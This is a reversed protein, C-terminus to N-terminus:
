LQDRLLSSPRRALRLAKFLGRFEGVLKVPIWWPHTLHFRTRVSRFFRWAIYAVPEWGEGERLAFYYDGVSHAPSASKLHNGYARTGGRAAALHHIMARPEFVVKGAVRTFRRCFETEFRYAVGDFLEDFGGAEIAMSKRMSLNGAMCNHVVAPTDSNFPFELDRWIGQGGASVAGPAVEQGPQLVQGVVACVSADAYRARHGAVLHDGPIIDDDLYLVVEGRAERLARNMAGCISPRALRLWRIRGQEVLDELAARTQPEHEETQDLVLIEDAPDALALLYGLTDVLVQERRYTPIAISITPLQEKAAGRAANSVGPGSENM